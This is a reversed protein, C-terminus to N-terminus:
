HGMRQMIRSISLVPVIPMPEPDVLVVHNDVHVRKCFMMCRRVVFPFYVLYVCAIWVGLLPMSLLFIVSFYWVLVRLGEFGCCLWQVSSIGDHQQLLLINSHCKWIFASTSISAIYLLMYSFVGLATMWDPYLAIGTAFLTVCLGELCVTLVVECGFSKKEEMDEDRAPLM